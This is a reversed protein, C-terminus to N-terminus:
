IEKDNNKALQKYLMDAIGTGRGASINKAYEEYLMDEFITRGPSAETLGGDPITKRMESFLQQLFYGEFDKCAKKLAEDDQKEAASLLKKEFEDQKAQDKSATQIYNNFNHNIGSINM